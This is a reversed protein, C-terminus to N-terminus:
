LSFFQAVVAQVLPKTLGPWLGLVIGLVALILTPVLMLSLKRTKHRPALDSQGTFASVTIPIFYFANLLGSVLLVVLLMWYGTALSGRMLYYKSWFASLPLMGIMGLSIVGFSGMTLPLIRGVGKLEGVKLYGTEEAVIGASFFLVIKLGSHFIMHLVAGALALPHLIFAGLLIYALQSITSYALRRKLVDQKLAILSGMLITVSCIVLLIPRVNMSQVLDVGFVSYVTRLIGFVGANVVAVAHLLASVPTPAVMASPLWGHLPMIAAKVGFGILFLFLLIVLQSPSAAALAAPLSGFDLVGGTVVWLMVIAALIFSAGVLSYKIYKSGAELAENTGSHVVLPYTAFTLLEYFLYFTFLNGSFAIGLTIGASLLFFSFYQRQKSDQDMYGLSYFSAFVWLTAAIMGYTLGLPDVALTLSLSAIGISFSPYVNSGLGLILLYWVIAASVLTAGIVVRNSRAKAESPIVAVWMAGLTTSFIAILLLAVNM